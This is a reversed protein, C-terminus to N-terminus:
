QQYWGKGGTCILLQVGGSSAHHIHWHNRCGPEFTIHNVGPAAPSTYSIGDFYPAFKMNEVGIDYAISAQYEERTQVPSDYVDKALRFAAWAKPWGAYMAIHTILGAMESQTVGYQRANRLHHVLSSDTIGQSVLSCVTLMTRTKDDLDSSNWVEGFLVDDNLHAFLPAFEGLQERGTTKTITKRTKM